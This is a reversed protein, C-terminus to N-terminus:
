ESGEMTCECTAGLLLRGNCCPFNLPSIGYLQQKVRHKEVRLTAKHAAVASRMNALALEWAEAGGPFSAATLPFREERDRTMDFVLPDQEHDALDVGKRCDCLSGGKGGFSFAGYPCCQTCLTANGDNKWKPVLLHYKIVREGAPM